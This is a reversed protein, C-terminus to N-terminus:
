VVLVAPHNARALALYRRGYSTENLGGSAEGGSRELELSGLKLRRFGTLQAERTEGLGDLTLVHATYLMFGARYDAETIWSDDVALAAEAFAAEIASADTAAFAPFREVFETETPAAWAM